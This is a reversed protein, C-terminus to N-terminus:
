AALFPCAIARVSRSGSRQRLLGERADDLYDPQGRIATPTAAMNGNPDSGFNAQQANSTTIVVHPRISGPGAAPYGQTVGAKNTMNGLGDFAWTSTFNPFEGGTASGSVLRNLDDYGYTHATQGAGGLTYGASRDGMATLIVSSVSAASKESASANVQESPEAYDAAETDETIRQDPPNA